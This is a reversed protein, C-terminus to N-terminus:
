HFHGWHTAIILLVFGVAIALGGLAQGARRGFPTLAGLLLLIGGLAGVAEGVEGLRIGTHAKIMLALLTM